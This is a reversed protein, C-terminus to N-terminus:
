PTFADSGDLIRDDIEMELEEDYADVLDEEFRRQREAFFQADSISDPKDMAYERFIFIGPLGSMSRGWVGGNDRVPPTLWIVAADCAGNGCVLADAPSANM